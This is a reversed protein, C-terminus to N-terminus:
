KNIAQFMPWIIMRTSNTIAEDAVKPLYDVCILMVGIAFTVAVALVDKAIAM